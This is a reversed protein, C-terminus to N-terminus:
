PVTVLVFPHDTQLGLLVLQKPGYPAISGIMGTTPSVNGLVLDDGRPVLLTAVGAASISHVGGPGTGYLNGSITSGPRVTVVDIRRAWPSRM